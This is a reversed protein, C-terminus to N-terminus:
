DDAIVVRAWCIVEVRRAGAAKLARASANSTAGSTYVDDVLLVHAGKIAARHQPPVRFAGRVEDARAKRGLGALSRTARVRSMGDILLANGTMKALHGAILAAQNYGRRWIRWRHLPVPVLLVREDAGLQRAMLVAMTRANSIRRSYKLRLVVQRAVAGYAMVARVGDHHPPVALCPGCILGEMALPIHCRVCYPAGLFDVSQWCEACLQYDGPTVVGCGPCRPPLAYDIITRAFARLFEM